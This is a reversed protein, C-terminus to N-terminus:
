VYYTINFRVGQFFKILFVILLIARASFIIKEVIECLLQISM